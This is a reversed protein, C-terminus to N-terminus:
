QNYHSFTIVCFSDTWKRGMSSWQSFKPGRKYAWASSTSEKEFVLESDEITRDPEPADLVLSSIMPLSFIFMAGLSQDVGWAM